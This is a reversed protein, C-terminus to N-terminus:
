DSYENYHLLSYIDADTLAKFSNVQKGYIYFIMEYDGLYILSEDCNTFQFKELDQEYNLITQKVEEWTGEVFELQEKENKIVEVTFTGIDM